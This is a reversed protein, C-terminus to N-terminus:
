IGVLEDYVEVFEPAVMEVQEEEVVSVTEEELEVVAETKETPKDIKLKLKETDCVHLTNHLLRICLCLKVDYLLKLGEQFQETYATHLLM